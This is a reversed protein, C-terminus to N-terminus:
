FTLLFICSTFLCVALFGFGTYALVEPHWSLYDDINQFLQRM